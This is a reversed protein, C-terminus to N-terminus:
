FTSFCLQRATLYTLPYTTKPGGPLLCL